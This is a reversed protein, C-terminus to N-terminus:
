NNCHRASIYNSKEPSTSDPSTNYRSNQKKLCDCKHQFWTLNVIWILKIYINKKVDNYKIIYIDMLDIKNM